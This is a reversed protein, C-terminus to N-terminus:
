LTYSKQRNWLSGGFSYKGLRLDPISINATPGSLIGIVGVRAGFNCTRLVEALTKGGAVDVVVDVGTGQTVEIIVNTWNNAHYNVTATLGFTKKVFASKRGLFDDHHDERGTISGISGCFYLSGRNRTFSGM